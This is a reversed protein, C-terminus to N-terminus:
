DNDVLYRIPGDIRDVIWDLSDSGGEDMEISWTMMGKGEHLFLISMFLDCSESMQEDDGNKGCVLSVLFGKM